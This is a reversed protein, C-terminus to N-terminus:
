IFNRWRGKRQKEIEPLACGALIRNAVETVGETYKENRYSLLSKREMEALRGHDAAAVKILQEPGIDLRRCVYDQSYPDQEQFHNMIFASFELGLQKYIPRLREWRSLATERQSLVLFNDRSLQLAGAALGNDIENGSDAVVIQFEEEVTELLYEVMAPFYERTELLNEVGALMYFNESRRCAKLLEKKSLVRNELYARLNEVSEGARDVYESGPGGHLSVLLVRVERYSSTILEAVSQALMTTGVKHDAGHFTFLRKM